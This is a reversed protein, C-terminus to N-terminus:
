IQFPITVCGLVRIRHRGVGSVAKIDSEYLPYNQIIKLANYTERNICSIVAGSDVLTPQFTREVELFIRNLNHTKTAVTSLDASM